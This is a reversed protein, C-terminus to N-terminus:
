SNGKLKEVEAKLEQVAKFLIAISKTTPVLPINSEINEELPIPPLDKINKLCPYKEIETSTVGNSLDLQKVCHCVSM